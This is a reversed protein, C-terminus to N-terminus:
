VFLFGEPRAGRARLRLPRGRQWRGASRWPSRWRATSRARRRPRASSSTAPRTRSWGSTASTGACCRIAGPGCSGGWSAREIEKCPASMSAYGQGFQAVPLGREQLRTLFGVAGWRDVAIERVSLEACIGALDAIIRDQDISNGETVALRGSAAFAAYPQNDAVRRRFQEAPCYQRGWVLWGGEGDSAVAYVAALDSVSALDVGVYVDRGALDSLAVERDDGQDYVDLDVWTATASDGWINLYLRRFMERQSPIEAARRATMRMEELSRFGAALAPNVARWIAEDTWDCDAPAQYLVPLFSPDEM